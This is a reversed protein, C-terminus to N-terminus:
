RSFGGLPGLYVAGFGDMVERVDDSPTGYVHLSTPSLCELFREAFNAGFNGLHELAAASDRYKECIHCVTGDDSLFWEYDIAGKEARTSEVMEAMLSKAEGLRGDQVALQLNWAVTDTM